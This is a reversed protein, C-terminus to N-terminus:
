EKHLPRALKKRLVSRKQEALSEQMRREYYDNMAWSVPNIHYLLTGNLVAGDKANMHTRKISILKKDELRHVYKAVTKRSLKLAKAITRYSPYCSYTKREECYLLYTYIAIEKPNLDMMYLANPAYLGGKTHQASASDNDRKM